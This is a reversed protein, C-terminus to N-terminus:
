AARVSASGGKRRETRKSLPRLVFEAAEEASERIRQVLAVLSKEGGDMAELTLKSCRGNADRM